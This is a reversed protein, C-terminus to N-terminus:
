ATMLAIVEDIDLTRLLQLEIEEDPFDDRARCAAIIERFEAFTEPSM